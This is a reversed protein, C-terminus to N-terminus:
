RSQCWKKKFRSRETETYFHCAYKSGYIRDVYSSPLAAREVFARYLSAYPQESSVNAKTLELCDMGLYEKFAMPGCRDLDEMRILLVDTHVSHYIKFGKSIPFDTQFVDIGLVQKLETDFWTLPIHHPYRELFIQVIESHDLTQYGSEAALEPLWAYLNHFFGSINVAVPDRALTIVKFRPAHQKHVWQSLLQSQRLYLRSRYRARWSRHSSKLQEMLESGAPTLFHAHYIPADLGSTVMSRVISTSGVRGMQYVLLPEKGGRTSLRFSLALVHPHLAEYIKSLWRNRTSLEQIWTIM